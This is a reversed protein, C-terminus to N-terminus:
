RRATGDAASLHVQRGHEARHPHRAPADGGDLTVDNPVFADAAHREVVPHRVDVAGRTRRRRADRSPTTTCRRANRRARGARRARRAGRATDQVRPAEAASGPACRRSSRSRVSSSASTPASCRRRTNRSRRRSSASAAPSPRSACITPPCAHGPEVQLGRHLLRLRPQVPDEALQHRHPRTRGGGDRRHAAQRIPQHRSPRGARSRRRRADRRRRAGPAPPEDALTDNSIRRPPRRSRRAGRALSRVLPAQLGAAAHPVRPVAALSQRLAVLDRPGATGLAAGRWWGNWTM